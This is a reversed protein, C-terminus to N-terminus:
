DFRIAKVPSIRAIFATPLFLVVSVVLLVLVNLGLWIGLDWHIPAYEMYYNAPDLPIVRFYDQILGFVLSIVNGYVLGKLVLRLGNFSFIRRIQGDTAGIAKFIGIMQTREMVMIFIVSGMNFCAVILILWIFISVNQRLLSLWEFIQVFTYDVRETYQEVGVKLSLSLDAEELNETDNLFVEYGGVQDPEWGNLQRVMGLDGIIVNKDFNDLATNYIGKVTFRRPRPPDMIFYVVVRDGIALELDNAVRKSVLVERSFTSDNFTIFDGEVLYEDFLSQDFDKTIGKYLVGYVEDQKQLLGPKHAYPQIFDVFPDNEIAEKRWDELSTPEEEYSNSLAIKKIQIHGSFSFLKDKINEQFGGLIMFTVLMIALGLAVSAVAIRHIVSSFSSRGPKSIRKAVFYPLNM